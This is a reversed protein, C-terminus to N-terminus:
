NQIQWTGDPRQCAVGYATQSRGNVNITQQFERCYSGSSSYGDNTTTVTGSNGSEPNNWRISQGVPAVYAQNMAQSAAQQDARDLSKGIESGAFAGVLTGLATAAIRGDGKGFQSGVVAGATAGGLTGITQKTGYNETCGSVFALAAIALIAKSRLNLNKM